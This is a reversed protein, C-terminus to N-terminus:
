TVSAAVTFDAARRVAIDVALIGRMSVIGAAFNAFPNVELTLYGFTGIVLSPWHGFTLTGAPASNSAIARCGAMVGDGLTGGWLTADTATFKQRSMLTQATAAPAVYGCRRVDIELGSLVDAQSEVLGAWALSTGSFTGVGSTNHIGTPQGSAGTGGLAAADVAVAISGVLSNILLADVAPAQIRLLRSLDTVAGVHKASLSIQGITPQSETIATAENTLWYTTPSASEKPIAQSESLNELLTAGFSGAISRARFLDFITAQGTGVLYNSGSTGAATMDRVAFSLPMHVQHPSAVRGTQRVIETHVEGEYGIPSGSAMCVAARSVSYRRSLERLPFGFRDVADPERNNERWARAGVSDGLM